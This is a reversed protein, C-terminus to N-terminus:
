RAVGIRRLAREQLMDCVAGVAHGQSVEAPLGTNIIVARRLARALRIYDRDLRSMAELTVEHKRAVLMQPPASLVLWLDPEPILRTLWRQLRFAPSLRYRVPDVNMDHYYRDFIVFTSRAKAPLVFLIWGVWYDAIVLLTKLVSTVWGRPKQGHPDKMPPGGRAAGFHPRLHFRRTRRFAPELEHELHEIITTKGAGDPGLVAVVLGAPELVRQIRRWLDRFGSLLRSFLPEVHRTKLLARKLFRMNDEIWTMDCKSIADTLRPIREAPILRELVENCAEPSEAMLRRLRDVHKDGLDLGVLHKILIYEFGVAPSPAWLRDGLKRRSSLVKESSLWLRGLLRYSAASDPQLFVLREGLQSALVYFCATTEHRLIQLLRVDPGLDASALLKPLRAFDEESVLFDVDSDINELVGQYGSLIVHQIGSRDLLECFRRLMERQRLRIADGADSSRRAITADLDITPSNM